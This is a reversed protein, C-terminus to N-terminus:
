GAPLQSCDASGQRDVQLRFRLGVGVRQWQQAPMECRWTEGDASRLQLVYHEHRKGPREAGLTPGPPSALAVAPWSPPTPDHGEARASRRGRWQPAQYRCHETLGRRGVPDQLLRREVERAGAPLEDCWGSSSELLLREIEIDRRWTKATVEVPVGRPGFLRWGLPLWVLLALGLMLVRWRPPSPSRTAASPMPM